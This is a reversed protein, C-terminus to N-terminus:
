QVSSGAHQHLAESVWSPEAVRDALILANMSVECGASAFAELQPVTAKSLAVPKGALINEFGEGYVDWHALGRRSTCERLVRTLERAFDHEGAWIMVPISGIALGYVISLDHEISAVLEACDRALRVAHETEGQLWLIRMYVAMSAIRGDMQADNVKAVNERTPGAERAIVKEILTRAKAQDGLYHHAFALNRGSMQNLTSDGFRDAFAQMAEALALGEVYRGTVLRHAYVGWLIRFELAEDALRRSLLYAREFARAMEITPGRTHWLSHGYAVLLEVHRKSGAQESSEVAAIAHEAMSLFEHPLSLHLWLPATAIVLDIELEPDGDQHSAWEFAARIDDIRRSLQALWHTQAKGEWAAGLDAFTECCHITHLRRTENAEGAELLRLHAYQRTTDLLRYPNDADGIDRAVLSKAVLGSIADFIAAEDIQGCSAVAVAERMGFSSRMVSLRRLVHQEHPDLLEYSWDLAAKLTQHRPLATRRGQTLLAFRDDLRAAIARVDMHAVRAAAFEIALPIGDLRRCIDAVAGINSVTFQFADDAAKARDHFLSIAPYSGAEEIGIRAGAEPFPLASLRHVSEGNARLPERSTVLLHVGSAGQLLQEAVQAVAEVVHECNDLVLLIPTDGLSAILDPVPNGSFVAVGLTSAVTSAVSAQDSVPAFNVFLARISTRGSLRHAIAVAVTTKGIGGPGAITLLRREPLQDTLGDIVDERGIVRTLTVPLARTGEDPTTTPASPAAATAQTARTSHVPVALRYGRGNDNVIYRSDSQGDSLAKRLTSVHVRLAGDDVVSEKWIQDRLQRTSVLEGGHEALVILIDLARSGIRVEDGNRTLVRQPFDIRFPGFTLSYRTVM